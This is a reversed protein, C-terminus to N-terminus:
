NPIPRPAPTCREVTFVGRHALVQVIMCQPQEYGTPVVALYRPAAQLDPDDHAFYYERYKRVVYRGDGVHYDSNARFESPRIRAYFLLYVYNLPVRDSVYVPEGGTAQQAATHLAAGLGEGVVAVREAAGVRVV